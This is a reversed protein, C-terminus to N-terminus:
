EKEMLKQTIVREESSIKNEDGKREKEEHEIARESAQEDDNKFLLLFKFYKNRHSRSFDKAKVM